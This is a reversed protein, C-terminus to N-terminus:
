FGIMSRARAVADRAKADAYRDADPHQDRLPRGGYEARITDSGFLLAASVQVRGFGERALNRSALYDIKSFDPERGQRKEWRVREHAHDLWRANADSTTVSYCGTPSPGPDPHTTSDPAPSAALREQLWRDTAPDPDPSGADIVRTFPSGKGEKKNAFGAIRFPHIAGTFNADGWRQNADIILANAAARDGDRKTAIFIAQLNPKGDDHKSTEQVLAPTWGRDQRMAALREPNSDDLVLWYRHDGMPTIYIDFGAANSKALGPIMAEVEAPAWFREGGDPGKGKGPNRGDPLWSRRGRLTVRYHEAGLAAHQRRWAEVRIKDRISIEDSM